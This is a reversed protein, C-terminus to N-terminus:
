HITDAEYSDYFMCALEECIRAIYRERFTRDNTQDEAIPFHPPYVSRFEHSFVQYAQKTDTAKDKKVEFASVSGISNGRFLEPSEIERFTMQEINIHIIFDTDFKEAIENPSEWVGGISSLWRDVEDDKITPINHVKFRRIVGATIDHDLAAVSERLSEPISCVVLVKKNDKELNTGTRQKFPAEVKPDGMIMKGAMVFLSCGSPCILFYTLLLMQLCKQGLQKLRLQKFQTHYSDSAFKSVPTKIMINAKPLDSKQLM